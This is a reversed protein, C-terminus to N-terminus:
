GFAAQLKEVFAELEPHTGAFTSLYAIDKQLSDPFLPSAESASLLLRMRAALSALWIKRGAQTATQKKQSSLRQFYPIGLSEPTVAKKIYAMVEPGFVAEMEEPAQQYYYVPMLAAAMVVKEAAENGIAHLVSVMEISQALAPYGEENEHHGLRHGAFRLAELINNFRQMNKRQGFMSFNYSIGSFLSM